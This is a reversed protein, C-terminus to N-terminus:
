SIALESFNTVVSTSLRAVSLQSFNTVVSTPLRAVFGAVSLDSLNSAMSASLSAVTVLSFETSLRVVSLASAEIKIILPPSRNRPM